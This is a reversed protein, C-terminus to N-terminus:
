ELANRSAVSPAPPSRLSCDALTQYASARIEGLPRLRGFVRKRNSTVLAALVAPMVADMSGPKVRIVFLGFPGSAPIPLIISNESAPPDLTGAATTTELQKV